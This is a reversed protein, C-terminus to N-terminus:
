RVGRIGACHGCPGRQVHTAKGIRLALDFWIRIDRPTAPAATAHNLQTNWTDQKAVLDHVSLALPFYGSRM